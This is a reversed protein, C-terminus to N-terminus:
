QYRDGWRDRQMQAWVRQQEVESSWYQQEIQADQLRQMQFGHRFSVMAHNVLCWFIMCVYWSSLIPCDIWHCITALSACALLDSLLTVSVEDSNPMLRCLIGVGQSWSHNRQGKFWSFWGALNHLLLLGLSGFIMIRDDIADFHGSAEVNMQYYLLQIAFGIFFFIGFHWTGCSGPWRSFLHVTRTVSCILAAVIAFGQQTQEGSKQTEHM